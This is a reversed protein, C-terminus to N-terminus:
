RSPAPGPQQSGPAAPAPEDGAPEVKPAKWPGRIAYERRGIRDIGRGVVRDLVLGAAAGVPGAAIAGALPLAAGMRPTVVVHQDVERRRLDASGSVEVRAAPGDMRFHETHSIGDDFRLRARIEDFAFGSGFFDRFDLTLRRAIASLSVLGLVRGVGPEVELLQGEGIDAHLVGSLAAADLDDVSRPWYLDATVTAKGRQIGADFGFAALTEGIAPSQLKLSLRTSAGTPTMLWEGGGDLDTGAGHLGFGGDAIRLGNRVADAALKLHGLPHGNLRLDDVSLRLAPLGRPDTQPAAAAPVAQAAPPEADAAAHQLYLRQLEVSWPASAAGPLSARGALTPGDLDLRLGGGALPQLGAKLDAFRQGAFELAGFQVDIRNLWPPLVPLKPVAVATANRGRGRGTAASPSEDGAGPSWRDLVLLARVGPQKPARAVGANWRLEGRDIRPARPFDDIELLARLERGYALSLRAQERADVEVKLALPRKEDARKGFPAPLRLALGQLPSDFGLVYQAAGARAAPVTLTLVGDTEGSALADRGRGLADAADGLLAAPSFRGALRFVTEGHGAGGSSEVDLQMPEGALQLGIREGDLSGDDFDLAGHLNTFHWGADPLDLTGGLFHIRGRGDMPAGDTPIRLALEVRHAGGLRLAEAFPGLRARVPTELLIRGLEAGDARSAGDVDVRTHELDAIRVEASVPVGLLAAADAQVTLGPGAFVVEADLGTLPPWDPAFDLVADQVRFRAEFEGDGDRYPFRDARGRLRVHGDYGAGSVLGRDLWAMGGAGIERDPLYTPAVGVQLHPVEASLDLWPAGGGAPLTVSGFAIAAIGPTELELREIDIRWGGDAAQQWGLHGRATEFFFPSRFVAAADFVLWPADFDFRGHTAGLQLTGDLREIGPVAGDAHLRLDEVELAAAWAAPQAPDFRLRAQPIRAAPQLRVLWDAAAGGAQAAALRLLDDVPLDRAALEYRGDAARSLELTGGELRAGDADHASYALRAQWGDAADAGAHRWDFRLGLRPLGALLPALGPLEADAAPQLRDADLRGLLRTVTGDAWDGWLEADLHGSAPRGALPLRAVDVRDAKLWFEGRWNAPTDAAGHLTLVAELRGDGPTRLAVGARREDAGGRLSLRVDQFVQEQGADGIRLEGDRLDFRRVQALWASLAGVPLPAGGSEPLLRLTGDPGAALRVRAGALDLAAIVPRQWRLSALPDFGISAQAFALLVAGSAPDRVRLDRVALAPGWGYWGAHLEGLTVPAGIAEGLWTEIGSKHEALQPLFLRVLGVLLAVAFLLALGCRHGWLWTHHAFPHLRRRM